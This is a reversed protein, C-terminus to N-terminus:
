SLTNQCFFTITVKAYFTSLLKGGLEKNTLALFSFLSWYRSNSSFDKQENNSEVDNVRKRIEHILDLLKSCIDILNLQICQDFFKYRKLINMDIFNFETHSWLMNLHCKEDRSHNNELIIATMNKCHYIVFFDSQMSQTPNRFNIREYLKKLFLAFTM